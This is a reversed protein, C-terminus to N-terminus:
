VRASRAEQPHHASGLGQRHQLHRDRAAGNGTVGRAIPGIIEIQWRLWQGPRNPGPCPARASAIPAFNTDGGSKWDMYELSEWEQPPVPPGDYDRLVLFGKEALEDLKLHM